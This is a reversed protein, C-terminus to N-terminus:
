EHHLSAVALPSVISDLIAKPKRPHNQFIVLWESIYSQAKTDVEWRDFTSWLRAARVTDETEGGIRLSIFHSALPPIPRAPHSPPAALGCYPQCKYTFPYKLHSFRTALKDSLMEKFPYVQRLLAASSM